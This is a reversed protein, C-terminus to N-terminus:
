ARSGGAQRQRFARGKARNGCLQMSCWSASHNRSYDYFLWRCEPCAKLRPWSGDRMAEFAIALLSGMAGDFGPASCELRIDGGRGLAPGLGGRRAMENVTAVAAADRAAGNNAFALTRLAERLEVARRLEAPGIAGVQCGARELWASLDEATALWERGNHRDATNVFRQVLELPEPALKPIDYRPSLGAV